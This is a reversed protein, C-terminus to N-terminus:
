EAAAYVSRTETTCFGPPRFYIVIYLKPCIYMELKAKYLYKKPKITKNKSDIRMGFLTSICKFATYTLAGRKKKALNKITNIM